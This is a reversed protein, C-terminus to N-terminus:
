KTSTGDQDRTRPIGAADLREHVHEHHDDVKASAQSQGVMIISLLVLQLFTQAIWPVLGEGGPKLAPPLGILALGTFLIACYMTGVAGTIAVGVKTLRVDFRRLWKM